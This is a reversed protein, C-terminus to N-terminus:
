DPEDAKPDSFAGPMLKWQGPGVKEFVSANKNLIGFVANRFNEPAATEYGGAIIADAIERTTLEKKAGLLVTMAAVKITMHAFQIDDSKIGVEASDGLHSAHWREVLRLEALRSELTRIEERIEAVAQMHLTRDLTAGKQFFM